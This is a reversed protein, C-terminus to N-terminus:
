ARGESEQLYNLITRGRWRTRGRRPGVRVPALVGRRGMRYVTDPHFAERGPPALFEAVQHVDYLADPSIARRVFPETDEQPQDREVERARMAWRLLVGALHEAEAARCIRAGGGQGDVIALEGLETSGRSHDEMVSWGSGAHLVRKQDSM